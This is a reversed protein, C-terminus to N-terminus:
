ANFRGLYRCQQDTLLPQIQASATNMAIDCTNNFGPPHFLVSYLQFRWLARKILYSEDDSLPLEGPWTGDEPLANHLRQSIVGLHHLDPEWIAGTYRLRWPQSGNAPLYMNQIRSKASLPTFTEVAMYTEYLDQLANFPDKITDLTKLSLGYGDLHMDLFADTVSSDRPQLSHAALMAVVLKQIEGFMNDTAMKLYRKPTDEFLSRATSSTSILAYLMPIDSIYEMLPEM